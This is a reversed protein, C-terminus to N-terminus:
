ELCLLAFIQKNSQPHMLRACMKPKVISMHSATLPRSDMGNASFEALIAKLAGATDTWGATYRIGKVYNVLEDTSWQKLAINVVLWQALLCSAM